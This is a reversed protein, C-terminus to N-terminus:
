FGHGYKQKYWSWKHTRFHPRRKLALLPRVVAIRYYDSGGKRTQDRGTIKQGYKETERNQTM